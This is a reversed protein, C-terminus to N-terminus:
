PKKNKVSLYNKNNFEVVKDWDSYNEIFDWGNCTLDLDGDLFDIAVLHKWPSNSEFGCMERGEKYYKLISLDLETLEIKKDNM